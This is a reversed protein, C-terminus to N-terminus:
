RGPTPMKAIALVREREVELLALKLEELKERTM